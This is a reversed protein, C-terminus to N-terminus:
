TGAAEAKTTSMTPFSSRIFAIARFEERTLPARMTPGAIAPMRTALMPSPQHKRSFATLSMATIMPNIIILMVGCLFTGSGPDGNDSMM